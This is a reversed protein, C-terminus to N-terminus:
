RMKREWFSKDPLRDTVDAAPQAGEHTFSALRQATEFIADCDTLDPREGAKTGRVRRVIEKGDREVYFTPVAADVMHLPMLCRTRAILSDYVDAVLNQRESDDLQVSMWPGAARGAERRYLLSGDTFLVFTPVLENGVGFGSFALVLQPE